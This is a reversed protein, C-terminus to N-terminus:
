LDLALHLVIRSHIDRLRHSIRWVYQWQWCISFDCVIYYHRKLTIHLDAFHYYNLWLDLINSCQFEQITKNYLFSYITRILM